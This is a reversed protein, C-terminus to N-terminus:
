YCISNKLFGIFDFLKMLFNFRNDSFLNYRSMTLFWCEGFLLQWGLSEAAFVIVLM